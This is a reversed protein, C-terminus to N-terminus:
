LKKKGISKEWTKTGPGETLRLRIQNRWVVQLPRLLQRQEVSSETAGGVHIKVEQVSQQNYINLKTGVGLYGPTTRLSIELVCLDKIVSTYALLQRGTDEIRDHLNPTLEWIFHFNLM